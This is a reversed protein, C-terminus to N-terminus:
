SSSLDLVDSLSASASSGLSKWFESAGLIWKFLRRGKNHIDDNIPGQCHPQHTLVHWFESTQSIRTELGYCNTIKLRNHSACNKPFGPMDEINLPNSSPNLCFFPSNNKICVFVDCTKKPVDPFIHCFLMQTRCSRREGFNLFMKSYLFIM